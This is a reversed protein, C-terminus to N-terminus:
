AEVPDEVPLAGADSPGWVGSAGSEGSPSAGAGAPVSADPSPLASSWTLRAHGSFRKTARTPGDPAPLVVRALSM